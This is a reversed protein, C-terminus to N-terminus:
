FRNCKRSGKAGKRPKPKRTHNAISKIDRRHIRPHCVLMYQCIVYLYGGVHTLGYQCAICPQVDLNNGHKVTLLRTCTQPAHRRARREGNTDRKHGNERPAM